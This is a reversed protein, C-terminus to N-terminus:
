FCFLFNFIYIFLLGMCVTMRIFKHLISLAGSGPATQHAQTQVLRVSEDEFNCFDGRCHKQCTFDHVSDNVCCSIGCDFSDPVSCNRYMFYIQTRDKTYVTKTVCTEAAGQRCERVRVNTANAPSTVCRYDSDDYNMYSCEYCKFWGSALCGSVFFGCVILLSCNRYFDLVSRWSMVALKTLNLTFSFLVDLVCSWQFFGHQKNILRDNPRPGKPSLSVLRRKVNYNCENNCM